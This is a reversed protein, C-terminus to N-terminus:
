ESREAMAAARAAVQRLAERLEPPRRVVFRCELTLLM